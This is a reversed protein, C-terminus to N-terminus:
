SGAKDKTKEVAKMIEEETDYLHRDYRWLGDPYLYVFKGSVEERLFYKTGIFGEVKAIMINTPGAEIRFSSASSQVSENYMHEYCEFCLEQRRVLYKESASDSKGGSANYFRVEPITQGNVLEVEKRCRDCKGVIM